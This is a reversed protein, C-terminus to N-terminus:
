TVDATVVVTALLLFYRHIYKQKLINLKVLSLVRQLKEMVVRAFMRLCISYRYSDGGISVKGLNAM